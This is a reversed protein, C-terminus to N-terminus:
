KNGHVASRSDIQSVHNSYVFSTGNFSRRPSDQFGQANSTKELKDDASLRM